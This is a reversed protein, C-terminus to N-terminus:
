SKPEEDDIPDFPSPITLQPAPNVPPRLGTPIWSRPQWYPNNLKVRIAEVAARQATEYAALDRAYQARAMAAPLPTAAIVATVTKKVFEGVKM